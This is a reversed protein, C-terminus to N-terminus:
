YAFTLTTRESLTAFVLIGRYRQEIQRSSFVGHSYTYILIAILQRPDYARQGLASYHEPVESTDLQAILDAFLFCDHKEPLLDFVNTAFLQHQDREVEFDKFQPKGSADRKRRKAVPDGAEPLEPLEPQIPPLSNM